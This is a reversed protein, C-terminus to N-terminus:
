QKDGQYRWSMCIHSYIQWQSIQYDQRILRQAFPLHRHREDSLPRHLCFLSHVAVASASHHLTNKCCGSGAVLACEGFQILSQHFEDTWNRYVGRAQSQCRTCITALVASLHYLEELCM